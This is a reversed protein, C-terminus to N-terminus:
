SQNVVLTGPLSDIRFNLKHANCKQEMFLWDDGSQNPCRLCTFTVTKKAHKLCICNGCNQRRSVVKQEKTSPNTCRGTKKNVTCLYLALVCAAASSPIQILLVATEGDSDRREAALDTGTDLNLGAWQNGFWYFALIFMSMTCCSSSADVLACRWSCRYLSSIRPCEARVNVLCIFYLNARIFYPRIIALHTLHFLSAQDISSIDTRLSRLSLNLIFLVNGPIPKLKESHPHKLLLVHRKTQCRGDYQEPAATPISYM